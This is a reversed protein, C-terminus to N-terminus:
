NQLNKELMEKVQSLRVKGPRTLTDAKATTFDRVNTGLKNDVMEALELMEAEMAPDSSYDLPENELETSIATGPNVLSKRTSNRAWWDKHQQCFELDPHKTTRSGAEVAERCIPCPFDLRWYRNRIDNLCRFRCHVMLYNELPKTPKGAADPEPSYRELGDLCYLMIQQIIDQREMYGYQYRGGRTLKRAVTQFIAVIEAETMGPITRM